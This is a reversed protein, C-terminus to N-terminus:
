EPLSAFEAAAKENILTKIKASFTAFRVEFEAREGEAWPIVGSMRNYFAATLNKEQTLLNNLEQDKPDVKWYAKKM